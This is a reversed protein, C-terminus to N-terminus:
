EGINITLGVNISLYSTTPFDSTSQPNTVIVHFKTDAFVEVKESIRYGSGVLPSFGFYAKNEKDKTIVYAGMDVGIRPRLSESRGIFLEATANIPIINVDPAIQIGGLGLGFDLRRGPFKYYGANGGLAFHDTVFYKFILSGGGGIQVAEGFDVFPVTIGGSAGIQIKQGQSEFPLFAALSLIICCIKKM